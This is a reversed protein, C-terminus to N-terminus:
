KVKITIIDDINSKTICGKTIYWFPYTGKQRQKVEIVCNWYSSIDLESGPDLCLIKNMEWYKINNEETEEYELGIALVFHGMRPATIGVVVPIDNMLSEQIKDIIIEEKKHYHVDLDSCYSKIDKALSSTLYGERLLGQQEMLKSLMKGKNSKRSIRKSETDLKIDEYDIYGLCLLAMLSSYVGCAGDLDGQKHHLPVWKEKVDKTQLGKHSLKIKNIIYNYAM